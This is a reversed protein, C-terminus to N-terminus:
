GEMRGGRGEGVWHDWDTGLLPRDMLIFNVVVVRRAWPASVAAAAVAPSRVIRVM